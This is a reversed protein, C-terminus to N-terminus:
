KRKKARVGMMNVGMENLKEMNGFVDGAGDKHAFNADRKQNNNQLGPHLNNNLPANGIPLKQQAQQNLINNPVVRPQPQLNAQHAQVNGNPQVPNAIPDRQHKLADLNM